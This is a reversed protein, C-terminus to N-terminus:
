KGLVDEFYAGGSEGCFSIIKQEYGFGIFPAGAARALVLGHYRMSCVIVARKILSFLLLPTVPSVLGANLEKSMKKCIRMDEAPFMPVIVPTASSSILREVWSFLADVGDADRPMIVAIRECESLGLERLLAEEEGGYSFPLSLALDRGVSVPPLALGRKLVLDILHRHSARDRLEVADCMALVRATACRSIAGKINGIGSGWLETRKGCLKAYGLIFLYYWLSRLSTDNQILTGGGFAVIDAKKIERCVCLLSKRPECEICFRDSERAGNKTLACLAINGYKERARKVAGLLLLDDGMNGYGYYGCLLLRGDHGERARCVGSYLAETERAMDDGSHVQLVYARLSEGLAARASVSMDLLSCVHSLLATDSISEEGRCCFNTREARELGDEFIAGLFGENGALVVPVACSMAELAARSVGVFVDVARFFTATDDVAGVVRVAEAGIQECAKEAQEKLTCLMEGGGGIVIRIGGYQEALLPAIRCLSLAADSCDADLRSLFAVTLPLDQEFTRKQPPVLEDTDIGNPIIRMYEIPLHKWTRLAYLYLDDSVAIVGCGWRSLADLLVSHKYHAHVTSVLPVGYRKCAFHALFASLRAHAHLVDFRGQSLLRCLGRYSHFLSIPSRSSLPLSVHEIGSLLLKKVLAGGSSAVVVTHGRKKLARALCLVHTEAGGVDM